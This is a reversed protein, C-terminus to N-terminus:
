EKQAKFQLGIIGQVEGLNNEIAFLEDMLRLELKDEENKLVSPSGCLGEIVLYRHAPTRVQSIHYVLTQFVKDLDFHVASYEDDEKHDPVDVTNRPKKTALLAKGLDTKSEIHQKLVQSVSAYVMNYKIALNALPVDVNL